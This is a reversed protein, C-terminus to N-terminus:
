PRWLRSRLLRGNHAARHVAAEEPSLCAHTLTEYTETVTPLEHAAMALEVEVDCVRPRDRSRARHM